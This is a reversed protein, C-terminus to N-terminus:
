CILGDHSCDPLLAYLYEYATDYAAMTRLASCEAAWGVLRSMQTRFGGDNNGNYGYWLSNACFGDDSTVGRIAMELKALRPELEVMRKWNM